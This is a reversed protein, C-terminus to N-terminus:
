GIDCDPCYPISITECCDVESHYERHIAVELKKGCNECRDMFSLTDEIESEMKRDNVVNKLYVLCDAIMDQDKRYYTTIAEVVEYYMSPILNNANGLKGDRYGRKYAEEMAIWTDM